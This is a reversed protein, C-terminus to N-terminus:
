HPERAARARIAELTRRVARADRAEPRYRLYLDLDRQAPEDNGLRDQIMGRDRLEDLDWPFVCLILEVTGLARRFDLRKLYLAKMNYLMRTLVQRNTIAALATETVPGHGGVANRALDLCRRGDLLAGGNFPDVFIDGDAAGYKVVFHGPLGVGRVELGLRRAVEIYLIGLSVPIGLHRDLVENLYSNRPDDYEEANGRFGERGFLFASLSELAARPGADLEIDVAGRTALDDIRALHAEIDLDPYEERACTLAARALDIEEDTASTLVSLEERHRM